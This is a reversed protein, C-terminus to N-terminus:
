NNASKTLSLGRLRSKFRPVASQSSEIRSLRAASTFDNSAEFSPRVRDMSARIRDYSPRARDVSPRGPPGEPLPPVELSMRNFTRNTSDSGNQSHHQHTTRTATSPPYIPRLDEDVSGYAQHKPKRTSQTSDSEASKSDSPEKSDPKSKLYDFMGLREQERIIDVDYPFYVKQLSKIAFRPFLCMVPVLFFVAWFTAEGYVQAAAGFFFVSSGEISTYIGTFIFIFLDSIAVVLLLIWDWQYTNIMIYGNIAFVAPHAVYAGFRMRDTIDLGNETLPRAAHFLLYPIFYVIVSQYLGDFM